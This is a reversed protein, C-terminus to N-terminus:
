QQSRGDKPFQLECLESAAQGNLDIEDAVIRIGCLSDNQHFVRSPGEHAVPTHEANTERSRTFRGARISPASQGDWPPSESNLYSPEIRTRRVGSPGIWRSGIPRLGVIVACHGCRTTRHDRATAHQCRVIDLSQGSGYHRGAVWDSWLRCWWGCIWDAAANRFIWGDGTWTGRQRVKGTPSTVRARRAGAPPVHAGDGARSWRDPRAPLRVTGIHDGDQDLGLRRRLGQEHAWDLPTAFTPSNRHPEVRRLLLRPSKSAETERSAPIRALAADEITLLAPCKV